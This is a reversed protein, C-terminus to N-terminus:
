TELLVKLNLAYIMIVYLVYRVVNQFDSKLNKQM